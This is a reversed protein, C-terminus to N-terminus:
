TGPPEDESRRFLLHYTVATRPEEPHEDAPTEETPLLVETAALRDVKWGCEEYAAIAAAVEQETLSPLRVLCVKGGAEADRVASEHWKQHHGFLSM